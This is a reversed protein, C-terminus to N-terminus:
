CIYRNMNEKHIKPNIIVVYNQKDGMSLNLLAYQNYEFNSGMHPHQVMRSQSIARDGSLTQLYIYIYTNIYTNLLSVVEDHVRKAIKKLLSFSNTM